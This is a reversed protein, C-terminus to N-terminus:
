WGQQQHLAPSHQCYMSIASSYNSPSPSCLLVSPVANVLVVLWNEAHLYKYTGRLQPSLCRVSWLTWLLKVGHFLCTAHEPHILHPVESLSALFKLIIRSSRLSSKFQTSGHDSILLSNLCVCLVLSSVVFMSDQIFLCVLLVNQNIEVVAREQHKRQM